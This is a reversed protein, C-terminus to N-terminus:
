RLVELPEIKQSLIISNGWVSRHEKLVDSFARLTLGLVNKVSKSDLLCLKALFIEKDKDVLIPTGLSISEEQYLFNIALLFLEISCYSRGDNTMNRGKDLIIFPPNLVKLWNRVGQIAFPSLAIDSAIDPFSERACNYVESALKNKDISSPKREWLIECINRYTWSFYSEPKQQEWMSYYLYHMIDFFINRDFQLYYQLKKGLSTIKYHNDKKSLVGLISLVDLNKNLYNRKTVYKSSSWLSSPLMNYLEKSSLSVDPNFLPLIASISGPTANHEVHFKAKRM